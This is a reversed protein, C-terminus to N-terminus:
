IFKISSEGMGLWNSRHNGIRKVLSDFNNVIYNLTVPKNNFYYPYVNVHSQGDTTNYEPFNHQHGHINREIGIMMDINEPRHTFLYEHWEFSDVIYDFGCNMYFDEGAMVDHNGLVLVKIGPISKFIKAVKDNDEKSAFRFCMDGLYIFVDTDKINERCWKVIERTDVPNKEKKYKKCYIHWDSTLYVHKLDTNDILEYISSKQLDPYQYETIQESEENFFIM